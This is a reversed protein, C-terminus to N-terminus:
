ITPNSLHTLVFLKGKTLFTGSGISGFHKPVDCGILFILSWFFVIPFSVIFLIGFLNPLKYKLKSTHMYNKTFYM